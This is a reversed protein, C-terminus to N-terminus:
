HKFIKNNFGDARLAKDDLISFLVRKVDEGTFVINIIDLLNQSLKRGRDVLASMLLKSKNKLLLCIRAFNLSLQILKRKKM